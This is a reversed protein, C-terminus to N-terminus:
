LACINRHVMWGSLYAERGRKDADLRNTEPTNKSNATQRNHRMKAKLPRTFTGKRSVSEETQDLLSYCRLKM